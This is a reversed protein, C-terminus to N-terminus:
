EYDGNAVDSLFDSWYSGPFLARSDIQSIRDHISESTAIWREIYEEALEVEDDDERAHGSIMDECVVMVDLFGDLTSNIFSKDFGTGVPTVEWISSDVISLCVLDRSRTFGFCIFDRVSEVSLYELSGAMEFYHFFRIPLMRSEFIRRDQQEVGELGGGSFSAAGYIWVHNRSM